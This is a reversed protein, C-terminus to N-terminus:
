AGKRKLKLIRALDAQAKAAPTPATALAILKEDAVNPFEGALLIKVVDDAIALEVAYVDCYFGQDAYQEAYWRATAKGLFYRTVARPDKLDSHEADLRWLKM